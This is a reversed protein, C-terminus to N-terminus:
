PAWQLLARRLEHKRRRRSCCTKPWRAGIWPAASDLFGCRTEQRLGQRRCYRAKPSVGKIGKPPKGLLTQRRHGRGGDNRSRLRDNVDATTGGTVCAAGTRPLRGLRGRQLGGRCEQEPRQRSHVSETRQDVATHAAPGHGSLHQQPTEVPRAWRRRRGRVLSWRVVRVRFDPLPEAVAEQPLEEPRGARLIESIKEPSLTTIILDGRLGPM